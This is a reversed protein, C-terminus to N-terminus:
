DQAQYRLLLRSANSQVKKILLGNFSVKVLKKYNPHLRDLAKEGQKILVDKQSAFSASRVHFVYSWPSIVNFYGNKIGRMCYDNEEGYGKPFSKEDFVGVQNILSRKIYMCFGNGTPLRILPSGISGALINEAYVERSMGDEPVNCFGPKPFSFAGSNNGMSTVTGVTESSYAALRLGFLWGSTVETDSNLLVVDNSTSQIAKNVTKTYGLNVNNDIYKINPHNLCFNSLKKVGIEDTSGDNMVIIQAYRMDTYKLVSQICAMSYDIANYVPIVVSVKKFLSNFSVSYKQFAIDLTGVLRSDTNFRKDLSIAYGRLYSLKFNSVLSPPSYRRLVHQRGNEGLRKRESRSRYLLKVKEAVAHTDGFPSLYGNFGDIVLEPLAGWSYGLVARRAAMGEAVTRGFSEAFSSLNLVVDVKSIAEVPSDFYGPFIINQPSGSSIISEKISEVYSNNPGILAFKADPCEEECLKAVEVLDYIGKKPINSSIVGFVVDNENREPIDLVDVDVVNPALFVAEDGGFDNKTAASNAIIFDSHERVYQKIPEADLGIHRCLYEDKSILERVHCYSVAGQEKSALLPERLMLTNVHVFQVDHFSMISKFREIADYKPGQNASWHKYDFCYVGASLSRLASLYEQNAVQPLCIYLNLDLESVAVLMDLFSREGGFLSKGAAHAVMLVTPLERNHTQAGQLFSDFAEDVHTVDCADIFRFPSACSDKPFNSSGESQFVPRYIAVGSKLNKMSDLSWSVVVAHDDDYHSQDDFLIKTSWRDVFKKRNKSIYKGRGESKGEHHVVVSTPEYWCQRKQNCVRLCFDVDEQGNIFYPDFGCVDAFDKSRVGICAATVAHLFRGKNVVSSNAPLGAYLPYGLNSWRSFVVGACQVTGDPFVLKPQVVKIDRSNIMPRIMNDLWGDSVTTDNNLFVAYEGSSESFGVNCGLAFNLNQDNTVLKFGYKRSLEELISKTSLDSGNDVVILEWCTENKSFYLSEICNKTLEGQGYVPVIVSVLGGRGSRSSLSPWDINVANMVKYRLFASDEKYAGSSITLQRNENAGYRLYHVFPEVGSSTVDKNAHRYDQPKFIGDPPVGKFTGFTLYHTILDVDACRLPPFHALYQNENFLGSKQILKRDSEYSVLRKLVDSINAKGILSEDSDIVLGSDSFSDVKATLLGVSAGYLRPILGFIREIAHEILGDEKYNDSFLIGKTKIFECLGLLLEPRIWFMTGAFFGWDGVKGHDGSVFEVFSEVVGKNGYMLRQASQFIPLSGVCGLNNNNSFASVITCFNEESGVLSDLMLDRWAAGQAGLGKKTHLKCVCTYKEEVLTPVLGLFPGIDLGVNKVRSVRADSFENRVIDAFTVDITESFTVFLDFKTRIALLRNRILTWMELYYVHVVVAIKAESSCENNSRRSTVEGLTCDENSGGVGGKDDLLELARNINFEIINEFDPLVTKAKRYKKIADSYMGKLFLLNGETLPSVDKDIM